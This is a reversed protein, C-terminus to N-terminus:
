KKLLLMMRTVILLMCIKIYKKVVKYLGLSYITSNMTIPYINFSVAKLKNINTENIKKIKEIKNLERKIDKLNFIFTSQQSKFSDKILKDDDDIVDTDIYKQKFRETKNLFNKCKTIIKDFNEDIYEKMEKYEDTDSIKKSLDNLDKGETITIGGIGDINYDYNQIINIFLSYIRTIDFNNCLYIVEGYADFLTTLDDTYDKYKGLGM